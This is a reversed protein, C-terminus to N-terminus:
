ENGTKEDGGAGLSLRSALAGRQLGFEQELEDFMKLESARLRMDRRLNKGQEAYFDTWTNFGNLVDDRDNARERGADVTVSKPCSWEVATWNEIPALKGALIANAIVFRYVPDLFERILVTQRRAFLRAAKAVVLRMAAGGVSGPEVLFEYLGGAAIKRLGNYAKLFEADPANPVFSELKEDDQLLAVKGPLIAKLADPDTRDRAADVLEGTSGAAVARNSTATLAFSQQLKGRTKVLALLENSDTLTALARQVASVGHIDTVRQRNFVHIVNEAPVVIPEQGVGGFFKYALPTGTELDFQIGQRWGAEPDDNTDCIKHTEFVKLRPLSINDTLKLVYIEGDVDLARCVCSELCHLDMQGAVDVRKAWQTFVELAADNWAEDGTAPQPLIGDGVSYVDYAEVIEALAGDNALRDRAWNVIQERETASLEDAADGVQARITGRVPDRTRAADYRGSFFLNKFWGRM